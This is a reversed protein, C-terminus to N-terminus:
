GRAVAVLAALISLVVAFAAFNSVRRWNLRVIFGEAVAVFIGTLFLAAIGIIFETLPPLNKYLPSVRLFTQAALGLFICTRLAVCYETIALNRGSNELIMAEHIMTLELHTTPDDVPMRSLESLAAIFFAMATLVAVFPSFGTKYIHALNMSGASLGLAAIGIILAPEAMISIYAERSAGLGGFSSGADMAALLSFFKGAGLMYIIFIFNTAAEWGTPVTIGSWPILVAAVLSVSLAAKPALLFISSATASITEGKKMLKAFDYFPQLLPPGIRNQMLAKVKRIIGMLLFPIVTLMVIYLLVYIM